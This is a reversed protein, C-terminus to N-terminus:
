LNYRAQAKDTGAPGEIVFTVTWEGMMHFKMGRTRYVGGPHKCIEAECVGPDAEPATAMGHGHQPMRADVTVSGGEVEKGDADVVRTEVEFLEGVVVPDPIVKWSLHYKGQVTSLDGGNEKPPPAEPAFVKCGFLLWIM